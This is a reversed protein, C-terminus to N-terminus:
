EANFIDIAFLMHLLFSYTDLVFRFSSFVVSLFVGNCERAYLWYLIIHSLLLVTMSDNVNKHNDDVNSDNDNGNSWVLHKGHAFSTCIWVSFM